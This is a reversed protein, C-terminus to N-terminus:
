AAKKKKKKAPQEVPELPQAAAVSDVLKKKKKKAPKADETRSVPTQEEEDAEFDKSIAFRADGVGAVTSTPTAEQRRKKKKGGLAADDKGGTEAAQDTGTETSRRKKKKGAVSAAGPETAEEHKKAKKKLLAARTKDPAESDEAAPQEESGKSLEAQIIKRIEDRRKRSNDNEEKPFLANYPLHKPYHEIYQHDALHGKLETRFSATETENGAKIAAELKKKCSTLKREVKQREIFKIMKYKEANRVELEKRRWDEVNQKREWKPPL